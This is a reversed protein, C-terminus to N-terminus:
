RGALMVEVALQVRQQLEAPLSSLLVYTEIKLRGSPVGESVSTANPVGVRLALPQPGPQTAIIPQFLDVRQAAM